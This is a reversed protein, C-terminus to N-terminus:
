IFDSAITRLYTYRRIDIEVEQRFQPMLRAENVIAVPLSGDCSANSRRRSFTLEVMSM